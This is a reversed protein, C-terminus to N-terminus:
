ISDLSMKWLSCCINIRELRCRPLCRQQLPHVNQRRSCWPVEPSHSVCRRRSSQEGRPWDKWYEHLICQCLSFRLRCVDYSRKTDGIYLATLCKDKLLCYYNNVQVVVYQEPKGTSESVAKSLESLCSNLDKIADAPVNTEIRLNPM